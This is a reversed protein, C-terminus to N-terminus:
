FPKGPCSKKILELAKLRRGNEYDGGNFRGLDLGSFFSNWANEIGSWLEARM